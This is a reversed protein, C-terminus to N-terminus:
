LLPILCKKIWEKEVCPSLVQTKTHYGWLWWDMYHAWYCKTYYDLYFFTRHISKICCFSCFPLIPPKPEACPSVVFRKRAIVTLVDLVLLISISSASQEYRIWQRQSDSPCPIDRNSGLTAQKEHEKAICFCYMHPFSSLTLVSSYKYILIKAKAATIIFPIM